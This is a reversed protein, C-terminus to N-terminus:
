QNIVLVEVEVAATMKTTIITGIRHFYSLTVFDCARYTWHCKQLFKVKMQKEKCLANLAKIKKKLLFLWQVPHQTVTYNKRVKDLETNGNAMYHRASEGEHLEPVSHYISLAISNRDSGSALSLADWFIQSNRDSTAADFAQNYQSVSYGSMRNLSTM